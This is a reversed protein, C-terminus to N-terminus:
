AGQTENLAALIDRSAEYWEADVGAGELGQLVRQLAEKAKQVLEDWVPAFSIPYYEGSGQDYVRAFATDTFDYRGNRADAVFAAAAIAYEVEYPFEYGTEIPRAEFDHDAMEGLTALLLDNRAENDSRSELDGAFNAANDNDFAGTGWAGM